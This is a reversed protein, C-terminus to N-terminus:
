AKEEVEWPMKTKPYIQTIAGNDFKIQICYGMGNISAIKKDGGGVDKKVWNLQEIFYDLTM